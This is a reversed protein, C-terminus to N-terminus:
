KIAIIEVPRIDPAAALLEAAVRSLAAPIEGDLHNECATDTEFTDFIGFRTDSIRFAYWSVTGTEAAALARASELVAALREGAGPRAELQALLALRETL